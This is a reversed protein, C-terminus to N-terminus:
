IATWGGDHAIVQGTLYGSADSALYVVLGQLEKPLGRRAMPTGAVIAGEFRERTNSGWASKVHDALRTGGHWGPAIANARIKDKAYEAALQKTFGIMGAKSAAYAVGSVSFDPYFGVMGIMSAINIISGGGAKLMLPLLARTCLFTGTLNIDLVRRWDDIDSEHARNPFPAVGANNVLVDLQGHAKAIAAVMKEVSGQDAVDVHLASATGGAQQVLAATEEM